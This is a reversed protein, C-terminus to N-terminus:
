NKLRFEFDDEVFKWKLASLCRIINNHWNGGSSAYIAGRENWWRSLESIKTYDKLFKNNFTKGMWEIWESPSAFDYTGGSDTNWVNGINYATKLHNWLTTEALGVCMLFSPDIRADIWVNVWMSWDQFDPTAYKSLLYDQRQKETKWKIVFKKQYKLGDTANWSKEVIDSIFKDEYRSPLSSYDIDVLSLYRLPDIAKRDKWVEFHLHPWTTMPWAWPTGPMGGSKAIIEWAEVFQHETVLIDSLHGYVTVFGDPHKIALYSYGGPSPPLIYYVYGPAPAVIDTGQDTGIDIADHQSGLMSYYGSDRFYTTIDRSHIPWMFINPTGQPLPSEKLKKENSFYARVSHCEIASAETIVDDGCGHKKLTKQMSEKYESEAATWANEVSEQANRQAALYEDFLKEQGQTIELLKKREDKQTLLIQTQSQLEEKLIHLSTLEDEMQLSLIYYDKLAWRYETVFQQGLESVLSKYTMDTLVSDVSWESLILTKITDIAWDQWYIKNGESYIHSIYDLITTRYTVIKRKLGLSTAHLKELYKAKLAIADWNAKLSEETQGISTDLIRLADELSMRKESVLEKKMRYGTEILDLKWKLAALWNMTYEHILLDNAGTETFPLAEFLIEEHRDKFNDLIRWSTTTDIAISYTPIFLIGLLCIAYIKKSIHLKM